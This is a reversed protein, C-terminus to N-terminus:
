RVIAGAFVGIGDNRNILGQVVVCDGGILLPSNHCGDPLAGFGNDGSRAIRAGEARGMM